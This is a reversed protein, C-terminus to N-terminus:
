VNNTQCCVVASTWPLHGIKHKSTRKALCLLANQKNQALDRRRGPKIVEHFQLLHERPTEHRILTGMTEKEGSACRLLECSGAHDAVAEDIELHTHVQETYKGM